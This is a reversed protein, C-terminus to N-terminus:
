WNKELLAGVIKWRYEYVVAISQSIFQCPFGAL